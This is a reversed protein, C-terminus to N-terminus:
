WAEIKNLLSTMPKPHPPIKFQQHRDRLDLLNNPMNWSNPQCKTWLKKQWIRCRAESIDKSQQQFKGYVAANIQDAQTIEM